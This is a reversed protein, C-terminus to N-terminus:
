EDERRKKQESLVYLIIGTTVSVDALNFAPWHLEGLHFDLFDIVYGFRLRDYINALAGSLILLLPIRERPHARKLYYLLLITIAIPVVALVRASVPSQSLIGFAFGKNRVNVLSFFSTVQISKGEDIMSTVISKSIRDAAFIILVIILLHYKRM